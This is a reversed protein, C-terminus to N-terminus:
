ANKVVAWIEGLDLERVWLEIYGIDLDDGIVRLVGAIDRLHKESGGELFFQLKKIIVDEPSAFSIEVQPSTELMRRRSFRSINFESEDAVMVDIKLGTKPHLINFQGRRDVAEFAADRSLYFEDEPFAACLDDVQDRTLRAVVDIDNTFRPEGYSITAMSGTVLYPIELKDFAQGIRELLESLEM